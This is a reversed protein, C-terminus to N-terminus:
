FLVHVEDIWYIEGEIYNVCVMIPRGVGTETNSGAFIVARQMNDVNLVSLDAHSVSALVLNRSSYDFDLCYPESMDSSDDDEDGSSSSTFLERKEGDFQVRNINIAHSYYSSHNHELWFITQGTFDYTFDYGDNVHNVPVLREWLFGDNLGSRTLSDDVESSDDNVSLTQNAFPSSSDSETDLTTDNAYVKLGGIVNKNLM